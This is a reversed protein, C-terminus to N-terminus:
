LDLYRDAYASGEEKKGQKFCVYALHKNAERRMKDISLAALFSQEAKGLQGMREYCLGQNFCAEFQKPNDKISLKYNAAAERWRSHNQLKLAESFAPACDSSRCPLPKRDEATLQVARQYKTSSPEAGTCIGTSQWLIIGALWVM